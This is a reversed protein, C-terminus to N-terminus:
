YPSVHRYNEVIKKFAPLSRKFGLESRSTMVVFVVAAKEDIYAVAESNGFASDNMFYRVPIKRRFNSISKGKVVKLKPSKKKHSKIDFAMMKALNPAGKIDGRPTADIYIVTDSGKWSGEKPYSVLCLSNLKGAENDLKWGEPATTTYRFGPGDCVFPDTAALACPFIFFILWPIASSLAIIRKM